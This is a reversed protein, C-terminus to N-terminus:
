LSLISYTSVGRTLHPAHMQPLRAGRAKLSASEMPNRPEYNEGEWPPPSSCTTSGTPTISSVMSTTSRRAVLRTTARAHSGRLPPFEVAFGHRAHRSPRCRAHWPSLADCLPASGSPEHASRPRQLYSSRWPLLLRAFQPGKGCLKPVM